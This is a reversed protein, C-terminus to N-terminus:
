NPGLKGRLLALAGLLLLYYLLYSSPASREPVPEETDGDGILSNNPVISISPKQGNLLLKFWPLPVNYMRLDKTIRRESEESWYPSGIALMVDYDKYEEFNLTHYAHKLNPKIPRNEEFARKMSGWRINHQFAKDVAIYESDTLDKVCVIFIVVHRGCYKGVLYGAIETGKEGESSWNYSIIEETIDTFGPMHFVASTCKHELTKPFSDGSEIKKRLATFSQGLYPLPAPIEADIQHKPIGTSKAAEALLFKDIEYGFVLILNPIEKVVTFIAEYNEKLLSDLRNETLDLTIKSKGRLLEKPLGELWKIFELFLPAQLQRESFDVVVLENPASNQLASQFEKVLDDVGVEIPRRRYM